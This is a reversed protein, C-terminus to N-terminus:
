TNKADQYPSNENQLIYALYKYTYVWLKLTQIPKAVNCRIRTTCEM